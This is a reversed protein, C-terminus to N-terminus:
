SNSNPLCYNGITEQLDTAWLNSVGPKNSNCQIFLLQQPCWM